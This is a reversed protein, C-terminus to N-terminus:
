LTADKWSPDGNYVFTTTVSNVTASTLKHNGVADLTYEVFALINSDKEWSIGTLRDANDYDFTGVVGNPYTETTLMGADDYEYTTEEDNWDTVSVLNGAEDYAYAVEDSGGPYTISTRRGAADYAYGVTRSGPFTVSTLRNLADYEYTTTGTIDAM